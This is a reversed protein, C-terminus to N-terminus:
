SVLCLGALALSPWAPSPGSQTHDSHAAIAHDLTAEGTGVIGEDTHVRVFVWNRFGGFVVITEVDRIKM